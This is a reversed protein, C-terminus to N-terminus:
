IRMKNRVNEIVDKIPTPMRYINSRYVEEFQVGLREFELASSELYDLFSLYQGHGSIPISNGQVGHAGWDLVLVRLLPM